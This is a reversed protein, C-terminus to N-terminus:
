QQGQEQQGQDGQQQAGPETTEEPQPSSDRPQPRVNAQEGIVVEVRRNMQRGATTENSAVPYNEGHARVEIREPDVGATVLQQRVAEARERSLEANFNQDGVADTYGEVLIQRDPNEELFGALREIAREGGPKLESQGFDFVVQDLTLVTGRETQQAKLDQVMQQLERLQDTEQQRQDRAMNADQQATQFQQELERAREEATQAQLEAQAARQRATLLERERAERLVEDRASAVEQMQERAAGLEAQEIATLAQQQALFANHDVLEIRDNGYEEWLEQAEALSEEAQQLKLAAYQTVGPTEQAREVAQQAQTYTDSSEELNACGALLMLSALTGVGLGRLHNHIHTNM